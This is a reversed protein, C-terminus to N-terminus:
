SDTNKDVNWAKKYEKRYRTLTPVSPLNPDEELDPSDVGLEEIPHVIAEQLNCREDGEIQAIQEGFAM